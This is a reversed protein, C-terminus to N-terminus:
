GATTGGTPISRRSARPWGNALEAGRAGQRHDRLQLAHLRRRTQRDQPREAGRDDRLEGGRLLPVHPPGHPAQLRVPQPVLGHGRLLLAPSAPHELRGAGAAHPRHQFQVRFAQHPGQRFRRRRLLVYQGEVTQPSLRLLRERLSRRDDELARRAVRDGPRRCQRDATRSCGGGGGRAAGCLM